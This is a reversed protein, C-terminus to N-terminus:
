RVLWLSGNFREPPQFGHRKALEGLVGDANDHHWEIVISDVRSMWPLEGDLLTKEYGEIDIKLISVRELGYHRFLTPLSLGPVQIVDAGAEKESWENATGDVFHGYDKPHVRLPVSDQDSCVCAAEAVDAKVGNLAFNARLVAANGPHPEVAILRAGPAHRSYYISTFGANAGLDVVVSVDKIRPHPAYCQQQFVESIIFADSGLNDRVVLDVDGVPPDFRLRLLRRRAPVEPEGSGVFKHSYLWAMRQRWADADRTMVSSERANRLLWVPNILAM